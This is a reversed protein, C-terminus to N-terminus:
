KKATRTPYIGFAAVVAEDVTKMQTATDGKLVDEVKARWAPTAKVSPKVDVVLTGVKFTQAPKRPAGPKPEAKDFTALDVDTRTVSYYTVIVDGPGSTAKTLGLATLQAEIDSVIRADVEKIIAPQGTELSYTKFKAFDTTQDQHVVSAKATPKQAIGLVPLALVLFAVVLIRTKIM